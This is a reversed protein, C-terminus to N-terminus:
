LIKVLDLYGNEQLFFYCLCRLFYEIPISPRMSEKIGCMPALLIIGNVFSKYKIGFHVSIAGGM